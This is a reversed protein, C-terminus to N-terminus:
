FIELERDGYGLDRKHSDFLRLLATCFEKHATELEDKTPAGKEQMKFDIPEGMVITTKVPLPVFISGWLGAALPICVGLKRQLWLRPGFFTKSTYYYDSAGFVYVPVVPTGKRMALKVFGKRSNLYIHEKQYVTRIQEAEGGPLVIMSYGKQLINEAVSRRADVCGTWMALERAVPIRFLVTAALVRIKESINPLVTHLMGDMMIRYDSATGHPFVAFMFQAGPVTEAKQLTESLRFNLHFYRRMIKFFFFHESFRRWRSGEKLESRAIVLTYTYYPLAFYVGVTYPDYFLGGFLLLNVGIIFLFVSSCVYYFLKNENSDLILTM